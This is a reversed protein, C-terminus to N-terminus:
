GNRGDLARKCAESPQFAPETFRERHVSYEVFGLMPLHRVLTVDYGGESTTANGFSYVYCGFRDTSRESHIPPLDGVVLALGVFGVTGVVLGFLLPVSAVLGAPVGIFKPRVRFLSFALIGFAAYAVCAIFVNAEFLSTSIDLASAAVVGVVICVLWGFVRRQIIPQWAVMVRAAVGALVPTGLLAVLTAFLVFPGSLM